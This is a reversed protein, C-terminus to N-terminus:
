SDAVGQKALQGDIFENAAGVGLFPALSIFSVHALLGALEPRESGARRSQQYGVEFTAAAIAQLALESPPSSQESYQYGEQLFITFASLSDEVRKLADAGVAYSEVFGIHAISPNREFFETFARGAAWIREPWSGEAVFAGATVAMTRQFGLEHISMFAQQKNAFLRAFVRHDVNAIRTIDTINTAGYGKERTAQATALLIRQRQNAEIESHRRPRGPPLPAPPRLEAEPPLSRPAPARSEPQLTRWRQQDIPTRYSAVWQLLDALVADMDGEGHRLRAALLRHITGLLLEASFDPTTTKCSLRQQAKEIKRAIERISQDRADLARPGGAPPENMLFRANERDEKAFGVLVEITAEIAQEGPREALAHTIKELLAVHVDTLAALLCAERNAFYDYFTPRSVGAEAIVRAITTKAYGDRTAIQIM